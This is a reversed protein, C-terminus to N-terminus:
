HFYYFSDVGALRSCFFILIYVTFPKDTDTISMITFLIFADGSDFQNNIFAEIQWIGDSFFLLCGQVFVAQDSEM